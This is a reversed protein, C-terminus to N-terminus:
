PAPTVQTRITEGVLLVAVAMIASTQQDTINLGFSVRAHHAGRRARRHPGTRAGVLALIAKM